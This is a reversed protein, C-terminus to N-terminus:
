PRSSLLPAPATDDTAPRSWGGGLSRYLAVWAEGRDRQLTVLAAQAAFWTRRADELEFLNSLGNDYRVQAAEFASQYLREANGADGARREADQLRLLAEEVERVGQRVSARYQAVAEDYRAQAADAQASRVGGDFIPVTLSLPGISWTQLNQSTGAGRLHMVSINGGLSLSPYRQAQAAGADASAAAVAREAAYVDPRQALARAPVTDVGPLAPVAYAAPRADLRQALRTAEWGTLAVIAQRQLACQTQQQTRRAAADAAGARVLVADAPAAFGAQVSLGTLRASENRSAVESDVLALQRACAREAVYANATEAAVSVRAAHWQAQSADLRASAADRGAALGGFLDIEWRAQVGAQANTFAPLSSTGSGAGALSNGRSAALTGDLTPLGAAGAQVRAARAEAIRAAASALTPSADQAAAILEVLLPDSAQAWWTALDQPSGGHPLAAPAPTQWQAPAPADVRAPPRMVSCAALLLPLSAYALRRPWRALPRHTM